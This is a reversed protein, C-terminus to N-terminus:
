REDMTKTLSCWDRFVNSPLNIVSPEERYSSNIKERQEGNVIQLQIQSKKRHAKTLLGKFTRTFLVLGIEICKSISVRVCRTM